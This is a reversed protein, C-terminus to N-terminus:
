TKPDMAFRVTHAIAGTEPDKGALLATGAPVQHHEVVDCGFAQQRPALTLWSFFEAQSRVIVMQPRLERSTLVEFAFFLTAWPSKVNPYQAALDEVKSSLVIDYADTPVESDLEDPGVVQTLPVLRTVEIPADVSVVVRQVLGMELIKRFTEVLAARGGTPLPVEQVMKRYSRLADPDGLSRVKSTM